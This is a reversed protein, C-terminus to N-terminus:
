ILKYEKKKEGQNVNVEGVQIEQEVEQKSEDEKM